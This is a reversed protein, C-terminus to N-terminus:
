YSVNIQYGIILIKIILPLNPVNVGRCTGMSLYIFHNIAEHSLPKVHYTPGQCPLDPGQYPLNHELVVLDKNYCEIHIRILTVM